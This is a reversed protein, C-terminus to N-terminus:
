KKAEEIVEKIIAVEIKTLFGERTTHAEPSNDYLLFELVKIIEKKKSDTM